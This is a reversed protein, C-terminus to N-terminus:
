NKPNIKFSADNLWQKAEEKVSELSHINRKQGCRPRYGGGNL